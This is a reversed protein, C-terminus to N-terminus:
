EKNSVLLPLMAAFRENDYSLIQLYENLGDSKDIVVELTDYQGIKYIVYKDNLVFNVDEERKYDHGPNRQYVNWYKAINLASLEPPHSHVTSNQIMYIQDSNDGKTELYFYYETMRSMNETITERIVNTNFYSSYKFINSNNKTVWTHIHEPETLIISNSNIYDEDTPILGTIFRGPEGYIDDPTLGSSYADEVQFFNLIREYLEKSVHIKGHYFFFPWLKSMEFIREEFTNLGRPLMYNNCNKFPKPVNEFITSNDIVARNAWWLKFNPYGYEHHWESRWLWNIIQMLISVNNKRKIQNFVNESSKNSSSNISLYPIKIGRKKGNFELYAYEDDVDSIEFVAKVQDLPRLNARKKLGSDYIQHDHYNGDTGRIKMKKRKLNNGNEITFLVLPQSPPIILTWDSFLLATSKGYVDIEQGKIEGLEGFDYTQWDITSYPDDYLCDGIKLDKEREWELPHCARDFLEKISLFFNENEKDIKCWHIKTNHYAILECSPIDSDDSKSGYNKYLCVIPEKTFNRIHTFKCRPIELSAVPLNTEEESLPNQRGINSTFTVIQFGSVIELGRYYLYPDIYTNPDLISQVIEEDSMDYLEQKYIDIPLEAMRERFERVTEKLFDTSESIIGKSAIILAIIASNLYTFKSDKLITGIKYFEYGGNKDFSLLLYKSLAENLFGSSNVTNVTETVGSKNATFTVTLTKKSKLNGTDNCCPLMKVRGSEDQKNQHFVLHKNEDKPCVVWFSRNFGWEQPPFSVPVRGFVRWEEVEDDEIIIPQDGAQCIRSYTKNKNETEGREKRLNKFFEPEKSALAQSPKIYLKNREDNVKAQTLTNNSIFKRLLRSFKYIFSKLMDKDRDKVTFSVTFGSINEKENMPISFKFYSNSTKISIENIMEESYDRFFVEFSDKSCWPRATENFYFLVSAIPDTILFTYFNYYDVVVSVDFTIKGNIKKSTNTDEKEFYFMDLFIMIKQLRDDSKRDINVKISTSALEFDIITIDGTKTVISISNPPLNLKILFMADFDVIDHTSCKYKYECNPNSYIIVPYRKNPELLEFINLTDTEDIIKGKGNNEKLFLKFYLEENKEINKFTVPEYTELTALDLAIKSGVNRYFDKMAVIENVCNLIYDSLKDDPLNLKARLFEYDDQNFYNHYLRYFGIIHDLPLKIQTGDELDIGATFIRGVEKLSTANKFLKEYDQDNHILTHYSGTKFATLHKKTFDNLSEEM